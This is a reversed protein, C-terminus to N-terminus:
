PSCSLFGSAAARAVAQHADAIDIRTVVLGQDFAPLDDLTPVLTGLMLVDATQSIALSAAIVKFRVEALDANSNSSLPVLAVLDSM